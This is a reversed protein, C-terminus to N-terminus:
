GTGGPHCQYCKRDECEYGKVGGHHNEECGHCSVGSVPASTDSCTGTVAPMGVTHCSACAIGGHESGPNIPFCKGHQLYNATRWSLPTHCQKCDAPFSSPDVASAPIAQLAPEHCAFYDTPTQEFGVVRVDAHCERCSAVAHKGLLPFRTKEHDDITFSISTFGDVTHCAECEQVKGQGAGEPTVEPHATPHELALPANGAQFSRPESLYPAGQYIVSAYYKLGPETNLGTLQFAGDTSVPVTWEGEIDKAGVALVRVVLGTMTLESKSPNVCKGTLSGNRIFNGM